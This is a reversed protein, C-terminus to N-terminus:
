NQENFISYNPDYTCLQTGVEAVYDTLFPETLMAKNYNHIMYVQAQVTTGGPSLVCDLLTRTYLNPLNELVDLRTLMKSDVDYLDGVVNQAHAISACYVLLLVVVYTGPGPRWSVVPM